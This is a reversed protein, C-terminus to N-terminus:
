VNLFELTIQSIGESVLVHQHLPPRYVDKQSQLVDNFSVNPKGKIIKMAITKKIFLNFPDGHTGYILLEIEDPVDITFDGKVNSIRYKKWAKLPIIDGGNIRVAYRKLKYPLITNILLLVIFTILALVAAAFAWVPWFIMFGGKVSIPSTYTLYEELGINLDQGGRSSVAVNTFLMELEEDATSNFKGRVMGNLKKVVGFPYWSENKSVFGITTRPKTFVMTAPTFKFRSGQSIKISDFATFDIGRFLSNLSDPRATLELNGHYKLSAKLNLSQREKIRKLEGSVFTWLNQEALKSSRDNFWSQLTAANFDIVNLGPFVNRVEPLDRGANPALPLKLAFMEILSNKSVLAFKQQLDSWSTNLFPSNAPPSNEFDTFTFLYKITSQSTCGEILYNVAGKLDTANENANMGNITSAIQGRSDSTVAIPIQVWRVTSGFGIISIKSNEPIAQLFQILGSKVADMYTTNSGPIRSRMSGSLDIAVIYEVTLNQFKGAYESTLEPYKTQLDKLAEPSIQSLATSIKLVFAMFALMILHKRIVRM